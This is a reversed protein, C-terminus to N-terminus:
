LFVHVGPAQLRHDFRQLGQPADLEYDGHGEHDSETVQSAEVIGSL